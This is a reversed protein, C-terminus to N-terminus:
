QANNNPDHQQATLEQIRAQIQEESPMMKRTEEAVKRIEEIYIKELNPYQLEMQRLSEQDNQRSLQEFKQADEDSFEQAMRLGVRQTIVDMLRGIVVYQYDRPLADVGLEKFLKELEDQAQM